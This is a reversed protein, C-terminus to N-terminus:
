LSLAGVVRKAKGGGIWMEDQHLVEGHIPDRDYLNNDVLPPPQNTVEHTDLQM